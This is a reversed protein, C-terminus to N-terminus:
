ELELAQLTSYFLLFPQLYTSSANICGRIPRSQSGHEEILQRLSSEESLDCKPTVVDVGQESLEKVVEKAEKSALGSRSPM